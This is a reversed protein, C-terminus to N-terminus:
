AKIVVGKCIRLRLTHFLSQGSVRFYAGESLVNVEVDEVGSFNAEYAEFLIIELYITDKCM